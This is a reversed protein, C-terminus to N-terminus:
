PTGNAFGDKWDRSLAKVIADALPRMQVHALKGLPADDITSRGRAFPLEFALCQFLIVGVAWLDTRPDMAGSIALPGMYDATGSVGGHTEFTQHAANGGGDPADAFRTLGFDILTIRFSKGTALTGDPTVMINLPKVDRHVIGHPAATSRHEHLAALAELLEIGLRAVNEENLLASRENLYQQLTQGSIYECEMFIVDRVEDEFVNHIQMLGPCQVQAALQAEREMRALAEDRLPGPPAKVTKVAAFRELRTDRVKYVSGMGGEALLREVVFRGRAGLTSGKSLALSQASQERVLKPMAAIDM